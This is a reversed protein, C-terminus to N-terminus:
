STKQENGKKGAFIVGFSSEPDENEEARFSSRFRTYNTEVWNGTKETDETDETTFVMAKM